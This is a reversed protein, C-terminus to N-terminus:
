LKEMKPTMVKDCQNFYIHFHRNKSHYKCVFKIIEEYSYDKNDLIINQCDSSNLINENFKNPEVREFTGDIKSSINENNSLILYKEPTTTQGKRPFAMQVRAIFARLKIGSNIIISFAKSYSPYHKRFFIEMAEYFVKVYHPSNKKTSEGKYHIIPYPLYYNSYGQQCVRYSLDIDEGYMFFAEDFGGIKQLISTRILMYAGAMIDIKHPKDPSLYGCNYRAFLKSKPFVKTLGFIKCFSVWPTPFSRKSEPLFEGNGDVMKTGIGGCDSHSEMWRLAGMIAEKSIITDPNLILTFEGNANKIAQNNAKAFGVNEKNEVAHILPFRHEIWEISGDNSNNDIVYIEHPIGAMAEKVSHLTQALFYKVRYNVIVVSIIPREM